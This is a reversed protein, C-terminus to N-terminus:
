RTEPSEPSLRIRVTRGRRDPGFDFGRQASVYGPKTARIVKSGFPMYPITVPTMGWGIGNVTILAGAPESTIRLVGETQGDDAVNSTEPENRSVPSETALDIDGVGARMVETAAVLAVAPADAQATPATATRASVGAAPVTTGSRYWATAVAAMAGLAVVAASSWLATSFSSSRVNVRPGAAADRTRDSEEVEGAIIELDRLTDDVSLGVAAAYQRVIARRYLGGPLRDLDGRELSRLQHLAIKTTDAIEEISRKKQERGRRLRAGFEAPATPPDSKDSVPLTVEASYAPPLVRASGAAVRV